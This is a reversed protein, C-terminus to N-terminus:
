AIQRCIYSPKIIRALYRGHSAASMLQQHVVPTVDFYQYIGVRFEVELTCDTWDYGVSVLNSSRVPVRYV